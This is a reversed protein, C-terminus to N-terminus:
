QGIATTIISTRTKVLTALTQQELGNRALLATEADADVSNGDARMQASGDETVSFQAREPSQSGMAQQLAAHFDVDRRRYGPTNVNALNQAIASHRMTAGAMARELAVQTTDFLEM